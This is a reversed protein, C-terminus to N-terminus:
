INSIYPNEGNEILLKQIKWLIKMVNQSGGRSALKAEEESIEDKRMFVQHAGADYLAFYKGEEKWIEFAIYKFIKVKSNM